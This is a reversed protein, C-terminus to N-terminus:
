RMFPVIKSFLENLMFHTSKNERCSEGSVDTM